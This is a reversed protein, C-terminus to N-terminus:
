GPESVQIRAEFFKVNQSKYLHDSKDKFCKFAVEISKTLSKELSQKQWIKHLPIGVTHTYTLGVMSWM